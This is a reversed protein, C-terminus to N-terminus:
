CEYWEDYHYSSVIKKNVSSPGQCSSHKVSFGGVVITIKYMRRWFSVLSRFLFRTVDGPRVSFRWQLFCLLYHSCKYNNM